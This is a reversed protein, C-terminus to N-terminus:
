RLDVGEIKLKRVKSEEIYTEVLDGIEIRAGNYGVGCEAGGAVEKVSQKGLQLSTIEGEGVVQEGRLIRMKSGVRVKEGVVKAGFVGGRDMKKFIAIVHFKGLEILTKEEPMLKDLAGLVDEFLKYIVNFERIDVNKERALEHATTTPKVTFAYIISHTAEAKLVDSDTINGLGKAVVEIGVADHKVKEFMGLVAELSGLVDARVIVNLFLKGEEKETSRVTQSGAEEVGSRTPTHKMKALAKADEPVELIDGVAPAFKLGLIKAPMSPPAEKVFEGKWDRMSRVRGYLAGRVGITDGLKLTGAQVLVTAVPGEGKDIHSEIITGIARRGANAMLRQKEMDAVLILVDLLQDINRGEKASVPVCVTKGGWDEPVLNLEALQGKVREINADAKDIKNLAVVFPLGAAKIIDVAEKTQPQVGDDVAVVLIAIDAVKAGRSRMVTFAEHGPTDIFTLQRGRREVQYAGIHQTIGGAEGEMVHTKRISDLIKTKGHDVHGLVVIVPPREVFCESAEATLAATLRTQGETDEYMQENKVESPIAKYGLDEAVISATEFDIRENLSVLIGSKLLEQMVRAIPLDLLAAFERVTMVSPLTAEKDLVKPGSKQAEIQAMQAERKATLRERKKLEMWAEMIRQAERDNVKIAHRGISFGLSPLSERLEETSVRLRRAIESINM